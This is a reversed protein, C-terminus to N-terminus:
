VAIEADGAGILETPTCPEYGADLLERTVRLIKPGFGRRLDAPHVALVPVRGGLRQLLGGIGDGIHGLASWRGCDWSRTALSVSRGTRSDLSFFGLVYDLGLDGARVHGRQWAPALFGRAPEGFADAFVHQADAVDVITTRADLGNMEDNGDTLWSVPGRGHRRRHVFGHLLLEASGDRVVDCYEPYKTLPWQGHWAPVVGFSLRRGVLPALDRIVSRTECAFAPSADHVCVVFRKM